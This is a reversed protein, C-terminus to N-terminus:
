TARLRRGAREAVVFPRREDDLTYRDPAPYSAWADVQSDDYSVAGLERIAALHIEYIREADDASAPRISLTVAEEGDARM